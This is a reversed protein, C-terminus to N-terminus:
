LTNLLKIQNTSIISQPYTKLITIWRSKITLLATIQKASLGFYNKLVYKIQYISGSNPFITLSHMENLVIRTANKDTGNILHSTIIVQINSHRGMELIQQRITNIAEMIKKDRIADCDDFLIVSDEQIDEIEIPETILTDDIDIRIPNLADIVADEPLRSFVIFPAKPHMKKYKKIYQSVYTSKGSGSAGAVYLVRTKDNPLQEFISESSPSIEVAKVPPDQIIHAKIEDTKLYIINGDLEGKVIIAIPLNKEGSNNTKNSTFSM